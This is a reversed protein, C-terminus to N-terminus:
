NILAFARWLTTLRAMEKFVEVAEKSLAGVEKLVALSDAYDEPARYGNKSILHNCIDLASEIAVVFPCKVRAIDAFKEERVFSGYVYAFLVADRGQLIASIHDLLRQKELSLSCKKM